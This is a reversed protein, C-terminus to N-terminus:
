WKDAGVVLTKGETRDIPSGPKITRRIILQIEDFGGGGGTMDNDLAIAKLKDPLIVQRGWMTDKISEVLDGDKSLDLTSYNCRVVRACFRRKEEVTLMLQDVDAEQRQRIQAQLERVREQVAPDALLATAAKAIAGKRRKDGPELVTLKYCEDLPAEHKLYEIVFAEHKPNNLIPMAILSAHFAKTGIQSTAQGM